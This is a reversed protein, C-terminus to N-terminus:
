FLELFCSGENMSCLNSKDSFHLEKYFTSNQHFYLKLVAEDYTINKRYLHELIWFNHITLLLDIFIFAVKLIAKSQLWWTHRNRTNSSFLINPNHFETYLHLKLFNQRSLPNQYFITKVINSFFHCLLQSFIKLLSHLSPCIPTLSHLFLHLKRVLNNLVIKGAQLARRLYHM